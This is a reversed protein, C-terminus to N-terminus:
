STRAVVGRVVRLWIWACAATLVLAPLGFVVLGFLFLQVLGLLGEVISGPSGPRVSAIALATAIVADGLLTTVTAMRIALAAPPRTAAANDALLWGVVPATVVGALLFRTGFAVVEILLPGLAIAFAVVAGLARLRLVSKTPPVDGLGSRM